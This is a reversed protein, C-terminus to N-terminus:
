GNLKLPRWDKLVSYTQNFIDMPLAMRGFLQWIDTEVRAAVDIAPSEDDIWPRRKIM